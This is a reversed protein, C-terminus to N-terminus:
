ASLFRHSTDPSLSPSFTIYRKKITMSFALPLKEAYEGSKGPQTAM